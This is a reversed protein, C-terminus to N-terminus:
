FERQVSRIYLTYISCFRGNLGSHLSLGNVIIAPSRLPVLIQVYLSSMGQPGNTNHTSADCIRMHVLFLRVEVYM